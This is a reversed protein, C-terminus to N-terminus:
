RRGRSPRASSRRAPKSGGTRSKANVKDMHAKEAEKKEKLLTFFKMLEPIPMDLMEHWSWHLECALAFMVKDYMDTLKDNTM